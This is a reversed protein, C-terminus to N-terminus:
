SLSRFQTEACLGHLAFGLFRKVARAASFIGYGAYKKPWARAPTFYVPLRNGLIELIYSPQVTGDFGQLEGIGGVLHIDHGVDMTATDAPLGSRYAHPKRARKRKEVRIQAMSQALIAEQRSIRAHALAFLIALLARALAELEALPLRFAGPM